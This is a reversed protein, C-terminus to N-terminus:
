SIFWKTSVPIFLFGSYPCTIHRTPVNPPKLTLTSKPSSTVHRKLMKSVAPGTYLFFESCTFSHGVAFSCRWRSSTSVKNNRVDTLNLLNKHKWSWIIKVKKTTKKKKTKWMGAEQPEAASYLHWVSGEVIVNHQQKKISSNDSCSSMLYPTVMYIWTCFSSLDLINPRKHETYFLVPLALVFGLLCSIQKTSTLRTEECMTDSVCISKANHHGFKTLKFILTNGKIQNQSEDSGKTRILGSLLFATNQNADRGASCTLTTQFGM